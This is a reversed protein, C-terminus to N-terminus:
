QEESKEKTKFRQVVTIEKPNPLIENGAGDRINKLEIKYRELSQATMGSLELRTVTPEVMEAYVVKADDHTESKEDTDRIVYHLADSTSTNDMSESWYIKITNLDEFEQEIPYPPTKDPLIQLEFDKDSPIKGTFVARNERTSFDESDAFTGEPTEVTISYDMETGSQKIVRLKYQGETVYTRPLSYTYSLVTKSGAPMIIKTGISTRDDEKEIMSDTPSNKVTANGPIYVRLYGKYDDSYTNLFGPFRLTVETTVEPVEKTINVYDHIETQVYRDAKKSGLNALNVALFDSGEPVQLTNGWGKKVIKEELGNGKFWFYIDKKHISEVIVKRSDLPNWKIKKMLQGALQELVNKREQLAKGDHRDVNNVAFEMENFLNEPTIKKGNLEVNGLKKALDEIVSFNVVIIGDVDKKPFQKQYFDILTKTAGPFDADWNADRFTYGQYWENGLLEQQPYPPTVRNATEIDYSNHFSIQRPFGLLTDLNGYATIFGGGPRLEYNNQFLILYNKSFFTLRLYHNAFFRLEGMELYVVFLLGFLIGGALLLWKKWGASVFPIKFFKGRKKTQKNQYPSYGTQM